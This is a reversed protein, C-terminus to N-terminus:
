RIVVNDAIEFCSRALFDFGDGVLTCLHAPQRFQNQARFTRLPRLWSPNERTPLFQGAATSAPATRKEASEWQPRQTRGCTDPNSTTHPACRPAVDRVAAPKCTGIRYRRRQFLRRPRVPLRAFSRRTVKRPIGPGAAHFVFRGNSVPCSLAAFTVSERLGPNGRVPGFANTGRARARHFGGKMSRPLNIFQIEGEWRM